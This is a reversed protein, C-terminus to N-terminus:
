SSGSAVLLVQAAEAVRHADDDLVGVAVDEIRAVEVHQLLDVVLEDERRADVPRPHLREPRRRHAPGLDGLFAEAAARHHGVGVVARRLADLLQLCFMAREPMTPLRTALLKLDLMIKTGSSSLSGPVPLRM